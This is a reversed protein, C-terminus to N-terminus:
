ATASAGVTEVDHMGEGVVVNKSKPKDIFGQDNIWAEVLQSDSDRGFKAQNGERIEVVRPTKNGTFWFRFKAVRPTAKKISDRGNKRVLTRLLNESKRIETEGAWDYQLETLVIRSIGHVSLFDHDASDIETLKKLSFKKPVAFYNEDGFLHRGICDLYAEQQGKKNDTKVSIEDKGCDYILLDHKQPHFFISESDGKEMKITRNLPMGYKIVISVRQGHPFLYVRCDRLRKNEGFWNDLEAQMDKITQETYAPFARAYGNAGLFYSFSKFNQVLARAYQTHFLDPHHLWCYIAVDDPSKGQLTINKQKAATNLADMSEQNAMETITQLAEMLDHTEKDDRVSADPNMLIQIIQAYQLGGNNLHVGHAEFFKPFRKFFEALFTTDIGAISDPNTFIKPNYTAM